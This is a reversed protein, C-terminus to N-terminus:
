IKKEPRNKNKLFFIYKKETATTSAFVIRGVDAVVVPRIRESTAESETEPSPRGSTAHEPIAM